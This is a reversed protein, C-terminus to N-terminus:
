FLAVGGINVLTKFPNQKKLVNSIHCTVWTKRGGLVGAGGRVHPSQFIGDHHLKGFAEGPDGTSVVTTHKFAKIGRAPKGNELGM